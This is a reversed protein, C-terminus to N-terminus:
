RTRANTTETEGNTRSIIMIIYYYYCYHRALLPRRHHRRAGGDPESLYPSNKEWKRKERVRGTMIPAGTAVVLSRGSRRIM